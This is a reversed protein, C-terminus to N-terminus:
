AESHCRARGCEGAAGSKGNTKVYAAGAIAIILLGGFLLGINSDDGGDGDGLTTEDTTPPQHTTSGRDTDGGRGGAGGSPPEDGGGTSGGGRGGAGARGGGGGAGGSPTVGPVEVQGGCAAAVAQVQPDFLLSACNAAVLQNLLGLCEGVETGCQVQTLGTGEAPTWCEETWGASSGPPCCAMHMATITSRSSTECEQQADDDVGAAAAADQIQQCRQLTESVGDENLLAIPCVQGMVTLQDLCTDSDCRPAACPWADPGSGPCCASRMAEMQAPDCEQQTCTLM